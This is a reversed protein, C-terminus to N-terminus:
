DQVFYSAIILYLLSFWFFWLFKFAMDSYSITLIAMSGIALFFGESGGFILSFPNFFAQFDM